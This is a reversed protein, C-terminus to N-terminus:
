NKECIGYSLVYDFRSESRQHCVMNQSSCDYQVFERGDHGDVMVKNDACWSIYQVNEGLDVGDFVTAALASSSALAIVSALLVSKM